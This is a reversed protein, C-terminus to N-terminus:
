LHAIVYRADTILLNAATTTISKGSQAKVLSIFANLQSTAQKKNGANISAQAATLQALLSDRVTAKTIKGEAYFRDVSGKLSMVSVEVSFTVSATSANTAKDVANVTLKHNGATLTLLDIVQGTVVPTGDIDAKVKALGASGVDVAGFNLTLFESHLYTKATPSTITIVPASTDTIFQLRGEIAPSVTGMATIYDIVADRVYYQTDNAIQNLPWLSM